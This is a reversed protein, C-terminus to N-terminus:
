PFFPGPTPSFISREKRSDSSVSTQRRFSLDKKELDLIPGGRKKKRGPGGRFDCAIKPPSLLMFPDSTGELEKPIPPSARRGDFIALSKRRCVAFLFIKSREKGSFFIKSKDKGRRPMLCIRSREYFRM